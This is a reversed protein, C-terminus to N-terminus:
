LTKPSIIINLKLQNNDNSVLIKDIVLFCLVRKDPIQKIIINIQNNFKKFSIPKINLQSKNEELQKTLLSIKDQFYHKYKLLGNIIHQKPNEALMEDINKVNNEIDSIKNKLAYIVKNHTENKEKFSSLYKNYGMSIDNKCYNIDYLKDLVLDEILETKIINHSKGNEKTPCRYVSAKHKGYNKPILKNGCKSCILLDKLIYPSSFYQPDKINAKFKKLLYIINKNELGVIDLNGKHDSKLYVEKKVNNKRRGGTKGM